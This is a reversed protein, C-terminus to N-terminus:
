RVRRADLRVSLATSVALAVTGGILSVAAVLAASPAGPFTGTPDQGTAISVVGVGFALAFLPVFSAARAKTYGFAWYFPFQLAAMLAFIAFSITVVMVADEATLPRHMLTALAATAVGGYALAAAFLGLSFVLRGVVVARRAVPLMGYLTDLDNKDAVAFPYAALFTAFVVAMVLASAPEGWIAALLPALIVMLLVQANRYPAVSRVDLRALRLVASSTM